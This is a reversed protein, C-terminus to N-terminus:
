KHRQYHRAVRVRNGCLDPSCWRRRPHAPLFLLVCGPGECGRVRTVAPDALLGAAAEALQALLVALPDGDRAASLRPGGDRWELVQYAPAARAAENIAALAAAPPPAGERVADLATAVHARLRRVAALGGPTLPGGPATLRGAQRALWTQFDGPTDLVDLDRTRTNLLDLALPEGILLEM